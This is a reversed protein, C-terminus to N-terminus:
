ALSGSVALFQFIFILSRYSHTNSYLLYAISNVICFTYIIPLFLTIILQGLPALFTVTCVCLAVPLSAIRRVVFCLRLYEAQAITIGKM